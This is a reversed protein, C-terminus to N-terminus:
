FTFDTYIDKDGKFYRISNIDSFKYCEYKKQSRDYDGRVYVQNETPNELAKVLFFEGKKLERITMAALEKEIVLRLVM